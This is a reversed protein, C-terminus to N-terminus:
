IINQFSLIFLICTVIILAAVILMGFSSKKKETSETQAVYGAKRLSAVVPRYLLFTFAANLGAKLLNFPLFAPILLKIIEERPADMYLPAILYNWLMMVAVMLASGVLLGIVAGALTRNKKYIISATCAFSCSSIINMVLGIFATESVTLMEIVSVIVSVAFSMMPDWILGGLAIIVDKPDYKLFLVVPIRIYSVILYAIAALMAILVSRRLHESRNKM